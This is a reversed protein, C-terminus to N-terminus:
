EGGEPIRGVEFVDDEGLDRFEDETLNMNRAMLKEEENLPRKPATKPPPPPPGSPSQHPPVAVNPVVPAPVPVASPPSTTDLGPVIGLGKAGRVSLYASYLSTEDVEYGTAASRIFPELEAFDPYKARMTDYARDERM